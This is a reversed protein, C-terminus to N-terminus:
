GARQLYLVDYEGLGRPYLAHVRLLAEGIRRTENGRFSSPIFLIGGHPHQRLIAEDALPKFHIINFTVLCRKASAACALQEGDSRQRNGAEEATLVDLKRKRLFAAIAVPVNEDFYFTV